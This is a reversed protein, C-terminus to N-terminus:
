LKKFTNVIDVSEDIYGAKGKFTENPSNIFHEKIEMENRYLRVIGERQKSAPVGALVTFEGINKTYDKNVLSNSGVITHNPLKAGKMISTRNGIWCFKGLYIEKTKNFTIGSNLDKVYHFNTDFLQSEAGIRTFDDLEISTECRMKVGNGIYSCNGFVIKANNSVDILYDVSAIMYGNFVIKGYLIILASGKSTSFNDTNLGLKIMGREIPANIIIEGKLSKFKVKNYIIIPFKIATLFPFKKFNIVITKIININDNFPKWLRLFYKYVELFFSVKKLKSRISM